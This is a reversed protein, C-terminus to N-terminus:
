VQIKDVEKIRLIEEGVLVEGEKRIELQNRRTLNDIIVPSAISDAKEQIVKLDFEMLIDGKRVHDGEKVRVVFGEGDLKVTGIGIHILVEYGEHTKLRIAHRTPFIFTIVGDSPAYVMSEMPYIMIGDGMMKESFGLDPANVVSEVKGKMPSYIVKTHDRKLKHFLNM